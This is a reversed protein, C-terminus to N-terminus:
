TIKKATKKLRPKSRYRKRIIFGCKHNLCEGYYLRFQGCWPCPKEGYGDDEEMTADSNNGNVESFFESCTVDSSLIDESSCDKEDYIQFVSIIEEYLILNRM